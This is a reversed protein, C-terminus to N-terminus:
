GTVRPKRHKARISPRRVAIRQRSNTYLGDLTAETSLENAFGHREYDHQYQVRSILNGRCVHEDVDGRRLDSRTRECLEEVLWDPVRSRASPFAFRYLIVHSFLVEWHPEFRELLRKWDLTRGCAYILHNVDAGDYRERENVFGKSWILEEAPAILCPEGFLVSRKAFEFWRDDVVSVGNGSSFILDVFHVGFYGKGIWVPDLVETRFGVGELAKLAPSLHCKRLAIDLDKTQRSMGTHEFLAYAGTILYPVRSDNLARLASARVSIADVEFDMLTM